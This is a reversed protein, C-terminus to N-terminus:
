QVYKVDEEEGDEDGFIMWSEPLTHMWDIFQQWEKLKHGRRQKLINRLAAYSIMFMRTQLYGQPLNQILTRWVEKKKEDDGKKDLDIYLNRLYEMDACANAAYEVSLPNEDHEFDAMTFPKKMITHMTSCSLKEVGARYTDMETLWYRPATIEVWVQIFRLHKAHEPGANALKNSLERDKPGIHGTVTDSKDYSAFPHRMAHIAPGIGDVEITTIKM